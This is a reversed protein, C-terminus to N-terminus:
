VDMISDTGIDVRKSGEVFVETLTGTSHTTHPAVGVDYGTIIKMIITLGNTKKGYHLIM